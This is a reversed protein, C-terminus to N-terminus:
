VLDRVLDRVLDCNGARAAVKRAEDALRARVRPAAGAPPAFAARAFVARSPAAVAAPWARAGSAQVGSAQVDPERAVSAEVDPRAPVVRAAAALVVAVAARLRADWDAAPDRRRDCDPGRGAAHCHCDWCRCPCILAAPCSACGSTSRKQNLCFPAVPLHAFLRALM